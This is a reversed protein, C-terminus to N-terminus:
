FIFRFYFYIGFIATWGAIGGGIFALKVIDEGFRKRVYDMLQLSLLGTIVGLIIVGISGCVLTGQQEPTLNFSM